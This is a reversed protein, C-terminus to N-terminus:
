SNRVHASIRRAPRRSTRPRANSLAALLRKKLAAQRRNALQHQWIRIVLWNKRRLESNVLSARKRNTAVKNRWFSRNSKPERYCRPCGHWFCGDVFVALRSKPFVFDPKGFLKYRRRWGTIGSEKLFRLFRLETAANGHSRIRAMLASRETKTFTDVM